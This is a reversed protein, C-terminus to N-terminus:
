SKTGDGITSSGQAQEVRSWRRAQRHRRRPHHRHRPNKPVGVPPKPPADMLTASLVAALDARLVRGAYEWVKMAMQSRLAGHEAM